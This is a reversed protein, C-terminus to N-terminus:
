LLWQTFLNGDVLQLSKIM